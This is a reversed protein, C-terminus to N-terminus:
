VFSTCTTESISLKMEMLLATSISIKPWILESLAPVRWMEPVPPWSSKTMPAYRDLPPLLKMQMDEVIVSLCPLTLLRMRGVSFLPEMTVQGLLQVWYTTVSYPM